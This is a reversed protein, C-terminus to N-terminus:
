EYHTWMKAIVIIEEYVEYVIRHQKNIRRSYVNSYGLMKEYFPPNQFPNDRIIKLLNDAKSKLGARKLLIADKQARKSYKLKYM